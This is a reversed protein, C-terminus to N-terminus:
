DPPDCDCDNGDRTGLTTAERGGEIPQYREELPGTTTAEVPDGRYCPFCATEAKWKYRWRYLQFEGILRWDCWCKIHDEQPRWRVRGWRNWKKVVQDDASVLKWEECVCDEPAPCETPPTPTLGNPDIWGLPNNRAYGYFGFGITSPLPDSQTYRGWDPNYWRYGNAFLNRQPPDTVVFAPDDKWQGPYRLLPDGAATGGTLIAEGYPEHVASWTTNASPDMVM